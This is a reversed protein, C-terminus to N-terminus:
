MSAAKVCAAENGDQECVRQCAAKGEVDCFAVVVRDDAACARADGSECAVGCVNTATTLHELGERTQKDELAIYSAVARECVELTASTKAKCGAAACALAASLILTRLTLARLASMM